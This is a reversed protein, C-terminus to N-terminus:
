NYIKNIQNLWKTSFFKLCCKSAILIHGRRLIQTLIKVIKQLDTVEYNFMVNKPNITQLFFSRM